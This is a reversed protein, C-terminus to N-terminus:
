GARGRIRIRRKSLDVDSWRLGLVNSQRLGTLLSLHIALGLHPPPRFTQTWTKGERRVGDKVDKVVEESAAAMLRRAEEVSLAQGIRRPGRSVKIGICPNRQIYQRDEDLCWDFFGALATRHKALTRVSRREERLRKLLARSIARKIETLFHDGFAPKYVGTPNSRRGSAVTRGPMRGAYDKWYAELTNPRCEKEALYEEFAVDFRKDTPSPFRGKREAEKADEEERELQRVWNLVKQKAKREDGERTAM